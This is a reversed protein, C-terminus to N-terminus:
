RTESATRTEVQIDRRKRGVLGLLGLLGLLGWDDFGRDHDRTDVPATTAAPDNAPQAFAMSSVTALTAVLAAQMMLKQM